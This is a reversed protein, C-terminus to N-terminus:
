GTKQEHKLDRILSEIKGRIEDRATRFAAM